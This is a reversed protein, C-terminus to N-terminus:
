KKNIKKYYKDFVKLSEIKPHFSTTQGKLNKPNNPRLYVLGDEIMKKRIERFRKDAKFDRYREKLESILEYYGWYNEKLDKEDIKVTIANEDNSIKVNKIKKSLVEGILKLTPHGKKKFNGKKIFNVKKLLDEDITLSNGGGMTGEKLDLLVIDSFGIKSIKRLQELVGKREKSKADELIKRLEPYKIREKRANYRYYIEGERIEKGHKTTIIPKEASEFVHIIGIKLGKLKQVEKEFEIEPSALSNLYEAIRAEDLNEFENNKLGILIRPRDSIGFIIYGGNKNSFAIMSKAYEERSRWDFSQKFELYGSERTTVRLDDEDDFKIEFEQKM